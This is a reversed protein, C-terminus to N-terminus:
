RESIERDGQARAALEGCYEWRNSAEEEVFGLLLRVEDTSIPRGLRRVAKNVMAEEYARTFDDLNRYDTVLLARRQRVPVGADREPPPEASAPDDEVFRFVGAHYLVTQYKSLMTASVGLRERAETSHEGVDEWTFTDTACLERHILELIARRRSADPEFRFQSLRAHTMLTRLPDDAVQPCGAEASEADQLGTVPLLLVDGGGPPSVVRAVDPMRELLSLLSHAGFDREHFDPDFTERLLPKVRAGKLGRAGQTVVLRRVAERLTDFRTPGDPAEGDAAPPDDVSDVGPGGGAATARSSARPAWGIGPAVIARYSVFRDFLAMFEPSVSHNNAVGVVKKGHRRLRKIIEVFDRDGSVIVYVDVQPLTWLMETMDVAMRLDAANKRGRGLVHVLEAGRDYLDRQFQNIVRYKWDAYANFVRVGGFSSAFRQLSEFDVRSSLSGDGYEDRLGYVLNELDVLLAVGSAGGPLPAAAEALERQAEAAAAPDAPESAPKLEDPTTGTAAASADVSRDSQWLTELARDIKASVLEPLGDFLRLRQLARQIHATGEGGRVNAKLLALVRTLASVFAEGDWSLLTPVHSTALVACYAAQVPEDAAAAVFWEVASALTRQENDDFCELDDDCWNVLLPGLAAFGSAGDEIGRLVRENKDRYRDPASPVLAALRRAQQSAVSADTPPRRRRVFLHTPDDFALADIAEGLPSRLDLSVRSGIESDAAEVELDVGALAPLRRALVRLFQDVTGEVVRKLQYSRTEGGVEDHVVVNLAGASM